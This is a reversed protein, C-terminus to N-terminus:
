IILKNLLTNLLFVNQLLRTNDFRRTNDSFSSRRVLMSRFSDFRVHIIVSPSVKIFCDNFSLNHRLSNQWRRTDKRYYPFRDAIFKYIEALPLMKDRSSWIAMATLSIYSYPPKQDGYTDRSPRPM